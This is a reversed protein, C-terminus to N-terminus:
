EKKGIKIMSKKREYLKKRLKNDSNDENRSRWREYEFFEENNQKINLQNEDEKPRRMKLSDYTALKKWIGGFFVAYNVPM